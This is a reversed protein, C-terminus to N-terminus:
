AQVFRGQEDRPQSRWVASAGRRRQGVSRTYWRGGSQMAKAAVHASSAARYTARKEPNVRALAAYLGAIDPGASM